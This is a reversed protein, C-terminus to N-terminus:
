KTTAEQDEAVQSWGYALAFFFMIAGLLTPITWKGIGYATLAGMVNLAAELLLGAFFFLVFLGMAHIFATQMRTSMRTM